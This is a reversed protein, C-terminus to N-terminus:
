PFEDIISDLYQFMSVELSRNDMFEFDMGLYDHKNGLHVALKTGYINALYCSFKTLEFNEECSMMLDDVHWIVTIQKEEKVKCMKKSGNKNRIIRGKKDIVPVVTETTVMKNGVCPDYPNIKFGYTDLEDRLKRYFLLNYRLLEYLAKKLGIYLIPTGKKDMKVNPRYIQPLNHVMIEALEGRLVMLVNEDSETHIFAGPVNYCRVFHKKHDAIVLTIFVSENEVTPSYADEKRIYARQPAGNM